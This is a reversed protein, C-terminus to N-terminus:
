HGLSVVLFGAAHLALPALSQAPARSIIKLTKSLEKGQGTDTRWFGQVALREERDALFGAAHLSLLVDRM